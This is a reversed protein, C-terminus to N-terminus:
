LDDGYLHCNEARAFMDCNERLFKLREEDQEMLKRLRKRRQQIRRIEKIYKNAPIPQANSECIMDHARAEIIQVDSNEFDNQTIHKLAHEYSKLQAENSLRANIFISITGDENSCVTEKTKGPLDILYVFIDSRADITM